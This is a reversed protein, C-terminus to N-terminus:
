VKDDVIEVICRHVETITNYAQLLAEMDKDILYDHVAVILYFLADKNDKLQEKNYEMFDRYEIKMGEGNIM